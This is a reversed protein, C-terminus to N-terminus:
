GRPKVIFLMEPVNDVGLGPHLVVVSYGQCVGNCKHEDNDTTNMEIKRGFEFFTIVTSQHLFVFQPFNKVCYM